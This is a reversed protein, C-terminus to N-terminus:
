DKNPFEDCETSYDFDPNRKIFEEMFDRWVRDTSSSYIRGFKIFAIQPMWARKGNNM